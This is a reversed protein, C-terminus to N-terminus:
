DEPRKSAKMTKLSTTSHQDHTSEGEGGPSEARRQGAGSEKETLRRWARSNKLTGEKLSARGRHHNIMKKTLATPGSKHVTFESTSRSEATVATVPKVRAKTRARVRERAEKTRTVTGIPNAAKSGKKGGKKGGNDRRGSPWEDAGECGQVEQADCTHAAASNSPREVVQARLRRGISAM